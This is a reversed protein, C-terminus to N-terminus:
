KTAEKSKPKHKRFYEEVRYQLRYNDITKRWTVTVESPEPPEFWKQANLLLDICGLYIKDNDTLTYKSEQALLSKVILPFVFSAM